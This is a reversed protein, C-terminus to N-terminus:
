SIRSLFAAASAELNALSDSGWGVFPRAAMHPTGNQLWPAYPVESSVGIEVEHLNANSIINALLLGEDYLLGRSSNGKKERQRQTSPRWPSWPQGEPSQKTSRIRSIVRAQEQIAVFALWPALPETSLRGLTSFTTGFDISLEM